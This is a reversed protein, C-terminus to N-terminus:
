DVLCCANQSLALDAQGPYEMDSDNEPLVEDKSREARLAFALTILKNLQVLPLMGTPTGLNNAQSKTTERFGTDTLMGNLTVSDYATRFETPYVNDPMTGQRIHQIWDPSESTDCWFAIELALM